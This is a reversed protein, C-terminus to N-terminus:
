SGLRRAGLNRQIGELGRRTLASKGFVLGFTEETL